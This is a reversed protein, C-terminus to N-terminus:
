VLAVNRNEVVEVHRLLDHGEKRLIYRQALTGVQDDLAGFREVDHIDVAAVTRLDVVVLLARRHVHVERRRGLDCALQPQPVHPPNDHDVKDVQVLTFVAIRQDLLHALQHSAVAGLM